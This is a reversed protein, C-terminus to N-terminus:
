FSLSLSLRRSLSQEFPLKGSMNTDFTRRMDKTPVNYLNDYVNCVDLAFTFLPALTEIVLRYSPHQIMAVVVCRM